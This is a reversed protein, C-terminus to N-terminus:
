KLYHGPTLDTKKKRSIFPQFTESAKKIIIKLTAATLITRQAM